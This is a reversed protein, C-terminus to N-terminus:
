ESPDAADRTLSSSPDDLSTALSTAGRTQLVAAQAADLLLILYERDNAM